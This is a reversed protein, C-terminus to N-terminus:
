FGGWAGEGKYRALHHSGSPFRGGVERWFRRAADM